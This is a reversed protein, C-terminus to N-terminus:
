PKEPPIHRPRRELSSVPLQGFRTPAAADVVSAANAADIRVQAELIRRLRQEAEIDRPELPVPSPLVRITMYGVGVQVTAASGPEIGLSLGYDHTVVLETLVHRGRAQYLLTALARLQESLEVLAPWPHPHRPLTM